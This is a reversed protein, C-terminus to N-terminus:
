EDEAGETEEGWLVPIRDRMANFAQAIREHENALERHCQAAREWCDRAKLGLGLEHYSAGASAFMDAAEGLCGAKFEESSEAIQIRGDARRFLLDVKALKRVRTRLSQRKPSM